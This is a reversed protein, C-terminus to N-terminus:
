KQKKAGKAQTAPAEPANEAATVRVLVAPLKLDEVAKTTPHIHLTKKVLYIHIPNTSVQDWTLSTEKAQGKLTISKGTVNFKKLLDTLLIAKYDVGDVKINSTTLQPYEKAPVSAVLKDEQYVELVGPGAGKKGRKKAAAPKTTESTKQMKGQEPAEEKKKCATFTCILLFMIAICFSRKM